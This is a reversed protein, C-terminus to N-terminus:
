GVPDRTVLEDDSVHDTWRQGDWYRLQHRRFPDAAWQAGPMTTSRSAIQPTSQVPQAHAALAGAPPSWGVVVQAPVNTSRAAMALSVVWGVLTWGLFLNLVLVSGVNPVKRVAGIITPLFYFGLAFLVLVSLTM